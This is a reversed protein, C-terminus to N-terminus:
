CGHCGLSAKACARLQWVREMKALTRCMLNQTSPGYSKGDRKNLQNTRQHLGVAHGLRVTKFGSKM